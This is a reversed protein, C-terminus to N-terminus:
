MKTSNMKGFQAPIDIATTTPVVSDLFEAPFLFNSDCDRITRTVLHDRHRIGWISSRPFSVLHPLVSM